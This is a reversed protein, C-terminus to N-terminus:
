SLRDVACQGQRVFLKADLEVENRDARDEIVLSQGRKYAREFVGSQLIEIVKEFHAAVPRVPQREM